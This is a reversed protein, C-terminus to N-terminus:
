SFEHPLLFDAEPEKSACTKCVPWQYRVRQEIFCYSSSVVRGCLLFSQNSSSRVHMTGNITHQMINLSRVDKFPSSRPLREGDIEELAGAEDVVAAIDSESLSNDSGSTHSESDSDDSAGMMMSVSPIRDGFGDSSGDSSHEEQEAKEEWLKSLSATPEETATRKSTLNRRLMQRQMRTSDPDFAGSKIEGFMELVKTLPVCLADRSYSLTSYDKDAHHGLLRRTPIDMGWKCAWSLVTSKLSHSSFARAEESSLGGAELVERMFHTAEGSSIPRNTWAGGSTQSPVMPGKGAILGAAERAELWSKVWPVDLLGPSFAVLPLFTTRKEDTMSVKHLSTDLQVFGFYDADLDRILRAPRMADGWRSSSSSCFLIQGLLIIDFLCTRTNCEEELIKLARVTLAPAQKLHRKNRYQTSAAGKVRQSATATSAGLFGCCHFCFSVAQTFSKAKTAAAGSDRLFCVYRYVLLELFILPRDEGCHRAWSMYLMISAARKLMTATSKRAFVDSITASIIADAMLDMVLDSLQRGVTSAELDSEIIVRWRNLGRLRLYDDTDALDVNRLKRVAFGLRGRKTVTPVPLEADATSASSTSVVLHIPLVPPASFAWTRKNHGTMMAFFGREWPMATVTRSREAIMALSFFHADIAAKDGYLVRDAALDADVM